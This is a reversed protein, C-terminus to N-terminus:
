KKSNGYYEEFYNKLEAKIADEESCNNIGCYQKVLKKNLNLYQKCADIFEQKTFQGEIKTRDVIYLFFRKSGNKYRNSVILQAIKYVRENPVKGKVDEVLDNQQHMRMWRANAFMRPEVARLGQYSVIVDCARHRLNVIGGVVEEMHTVSLVYTNIDELVLLGNRFNKLLYELIVKKEKIGVNKADIRRCEVINSKCWDAIDKLAIRKPEFNDIDNNSFQEKTYEGNTDYILCKRGKVRNYTKDKVYESIVHMNQYTKGVGQFGVTLTMGAERMSTANKEKDSM